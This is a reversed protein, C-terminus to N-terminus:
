KSLTEYLERNSNYLAVREKYGMKAFDQKTVGVAGLNTTTPENGKVENGAFLYPESQKLATLQEGLKDFDMGAEGNVQELDILASVAKTNKVGFKSFTSELLTNQLKGELEKVTGSLTEKESGVARISEELEAVKEELEKKKDNVTNFRDLPIKGEGLTIPTDGVKEMVQNYLEEGLMEKLDM